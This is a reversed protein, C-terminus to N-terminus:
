SSRRPMQFAKVSSSGWCTNSCMLLKPWHRSPMKLLKSPSTFRVSSFTRSAISLTIALCELLAAIRTSALFAQAQFLPSLRSLSNFLTLFPLLPAGAAASSPSSGSALLALNSSWSSSQSPSNPGSVWSSWPAGISGGSPSSGWLPNTCNAVGWFVQYMRAALAMLLHVM